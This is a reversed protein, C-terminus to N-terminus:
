SIIAGNSSPTITGQPNWGTFTAGWNYNTITGGSSIYDSIHEILFCHSSSNMEAKANYIMIANATMSALGADISAVGYSPDIVGVTVVAQSATISADGLVDGRGDGMDYIISDYVEMTSAPSSLSASGWQSVSIDSVTGMDYEITDHIEITSSSSLSATGFLSTSITVYLSTSSTMSSAGHLDMTGDATISSSSLLSSAGHLDVSGDSAFSTSVSMSSAGILDVSSGSALTSSSSLSAQGVFIVSSDSSISSSVSISSDGHLYRAGVISISTSINIYIERQVTGMDYIITDHIEISSSSSLSAQGYQIAM